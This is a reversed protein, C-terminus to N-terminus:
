ESDDSDASKDEKKDKKYTVEVQISMINDTTDVIFKAMEELDEVTPSKSECECNECCNECDCKKESKLEEIKAELEAIKKRADELELMNKQVMFGFAAFHTVDEMFDVHAAKAM